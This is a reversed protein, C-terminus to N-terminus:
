VTVPTNIVSGLGVFKNKPTQPTQINNPLFGALVGALLLAGISAPYKRM